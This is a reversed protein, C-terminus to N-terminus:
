IRDGGVQNKLHDHIRKVLDELKDLRKALDKKPEDRKLFDKLVDM